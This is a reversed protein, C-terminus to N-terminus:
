CTTPGSRGAARASRAGSEIWGAIERPSASPWRASRARRCTARCKSRGNSPISRREAEQIPPWLTVTGGEDRRATSHEITARRAGGAPAGDNRFVADVANLVGPCPASAPESGCRPLRDSRWSHGSATATAPIASSSPSPARSRSSRSSRTAWRLCRARGTSRRRRRLFGRGARRDGAMARSQHGPGRRRPHPHPRCRAQLAGVARAGPGAPAIALTEILDDFDLLSRARKEAEYHTRSPPWRYRAAGRLARDAPCAALDGSLRHLRDRKPKSGARVTGPHADALAKTLLSKRPTARTPSSPTSCRRRHSPRTSMAARWGTPM